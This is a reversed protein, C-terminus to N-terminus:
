CTKVDDKTGAMRDPGDSWVAVRRGGLAEGNVDLKEDGDLDMRVHYGGGWPDCLGVVSGGGPGFILGNKKNKGDRVSLFEIARTNRVAGAGLLEKLLVTDTDTKVTVDSNGGQPMSGYESYYINISSELATATALCTIKRAKQIAANGATFGAMALIPIVVVAIVTFLYGMILGAVAMDHGQLTGGSKKIRALAMYGTIVGPIGTLPGLILGCIGCVLSATALGCSVTPNPIPQTPNNQM